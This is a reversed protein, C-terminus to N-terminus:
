SSCTVYASKETLSQILDRKLTVGLGPGQPVPM